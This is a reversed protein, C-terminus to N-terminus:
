GEGATLTARRIPGRRGPPARHTVALDLAGSVFAARPDTLDWGSWDYIEEVVAVPEAVIREFELHLVRDGDTTAWAPMTRRARELRPSWERMVGREDVEAAYVRRAAIVLRAFSVDVAAADRHLIVFRAQPIADALADLRALHAPAKLVLRSADAFQHALLSGYWRYIAAHDHGDFWRGYSPLDLAILYRESVFSAAMATLCEDPGTPTMPHLALLDPSLREVVRVWSTAYAAASVPDATPSLGSALTPTTTARDLALLQHLFTSATRPSGTVVLVEGGPAGHGDVGAADLATRQGVAHLMEAALIRRGERHLAVRSLDDFLPALPERLSALTTLGPDGHEDAVAAALREYSLGASM